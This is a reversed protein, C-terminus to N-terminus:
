FEGNQYYPIVALVGADERSVPVVVTQKRSVPNFWALIQPFPALAGSCGQDEQLLLRTATASVITAEPEGRIVYARVKGHPEQRVVINNGCHPGQANLYTGSSLQYLDSDGEDEGALDQRQPTLPTGKAGSLPILWMRDASSDHPACDALITVSNWWRVVDCLQPSYLHRIVRGASSLLVMSGYSDTVLEQGGPSYVVNDIGPARWVTKQAQGGLSYLVLADDGTASASVKDVLIEKGDPRSYGVPILSAARFTFGTFKGTRLNLQEVRMRPHKDSGGYTFLARQSDGSWDILDGYPAAGKAPWSFLRYRGRQPDILYLIVSGSVKQSPNASTAADEALAWGPGILRWPM